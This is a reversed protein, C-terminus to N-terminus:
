GLGWCLARGISLGPGNTGFDLASVMLGGRRVCYGLLVCKKRTKIEKTSIALHVLSFVIAERKERPYMVLGVKGALYGGLLSHEHVRSAGGPCKMFITKRTNWVWHGSSLTIIRSLSWFPWSSPWNQPSGSNGTKRPRFSQTDNLDSLSNADPSSPKLAVYSAKGQLYELNVCVTILIVWNNIKKCSSWLNCLQGSYLRFSIWHYESSGYIENEPPWSTNRYGGNSKKIKIILHKQQLRSLDLLPM